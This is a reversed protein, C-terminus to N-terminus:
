AASADTVAITVVLERGVMWRPALHQELRDRITVQEGAPDAMASAALSVAVEDVFTLVGHRVSPTSKVVTSTLRSDFARVAVAVDEATVIRERTRVLDAFRDRAAAYPPPETGGRTPVVNEVSLRPNGSVTGRVQRLDGIELGNGRSGDCLQLRAVASRDRRGTENRHPRVEIHRERLRYRGTGLPADLNDEAVYWDGHEGVVSLAGLVHRDETGEPRMRLTTGVRDFVLTESMVELNSATACHMVVRELMTAVNGTGPPLPVEIWALPAQDYADPKGEVISSLVPRLLQPPVGSWRRDAPVEPFVFLSTGYPGPPAGQGDRSTKSPVDDAWRLVSVGGAGPTARMVGAERRVGDPGLLIWPARALRTIVDADLGAVQLSVGLNSLHRPDVEIGLYLTPITGSKAGLPFRGPPIFAGDVPSVAGGLAFCDSGQVVGAFALRSPSIEIPYDVSFVLPEGTRSYGAIAIEPPISARADINSFRVITQSPRAVRPALVLGSLLDDLVATPFAGEAEDYLRDIHVAFAHFLAVLVPDAPAAGGTRAYIAREFEASMSRVIEETKPKIPALPSNARDPM